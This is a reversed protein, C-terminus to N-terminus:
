SSGSTRDKAAATWPLRFSLSNQRIEADDLGSGAATKGRWFRGFRGFLRFYPVIHPM